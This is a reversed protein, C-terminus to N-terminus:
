KHQHSTVDGRSSIKKQKMKLKDKVDKNIEFNSVGDKPSTLGSAAAAATGTAGGASGPLNLQVVEGFRIKELRDKLQECKGSNYMNRLMKLTFERLKQDEEDIPKTYFM